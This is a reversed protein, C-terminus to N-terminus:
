FGNFKATNIM